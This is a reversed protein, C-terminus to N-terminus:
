AFSHMVPGVVNLFFSKVPRRNSSLSVHSVTIRGHEGGGPSTAASRRRRSEPVRPKVFIM